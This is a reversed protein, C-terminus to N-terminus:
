PSMGAFVVLVVSAGIANTFYAPVHFISVPRGTPAMGVRWARHADEVPESFAFRM